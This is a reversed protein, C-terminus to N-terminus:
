KIFDSCPQLQGVAKELTATSKGFCWRVFGTELLEPSFFCRGPVVSVGAQEMLAQAFAMDDLGQPVQSWLYYAGQTPAVAWGKAQLAHSLHDRKQTLAQRQAVYFSPPLALCGIAAHQFPVPANGTTCDHLARIAGTAAPPAVVAGVRWGTASYTKSVSYLTITRQAMGPLTAFPIHLRGDFLLQDYVEDSLVWLNHREALEALTELESHTFVKGTPNCPNNLVLLRTKRTIAAELAQENLEFSPFPLTCMTPRAGLSSLTPWYPEYFPALLLAEDGPQLTAAMALYIGETAGTTITIETLPAPHWNYHHNLYQAMAERLVLVGHPNASQHVTEGDDGRLAQDLAALVPPPPAFDPLGEALNLAGLRNALRTMDCILSENVDALVPNLAPSQHTPEIFQPSRPALM